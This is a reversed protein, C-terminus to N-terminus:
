SSKKVNCVLTGSYRGSIPFSINLHNHIIILLPDSPVSMVRSRHRKEELSSVFDMFRSNLYETNLRTSRPCVAFDSGRM